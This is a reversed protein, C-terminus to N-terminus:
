TVYGEVELRPLHDVVCNELFFLVFTIDDDVCTM